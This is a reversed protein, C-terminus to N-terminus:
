ESDEDEAYNRRAIVGTRIRTRYPWDDSDIIAYKRRRTSHRLAPAPIVPNIMHRAVNSLKNSTDIYCKQCNNCGYLEPAMDGKFRETFWDLLDKLESSIRSDAKFEWCKALLVYRFNTYALVFPIGHDKFFRLMDTIVTIKKEVDHQTDCVALFGNVKTLCFEKYATWEETHSPVTSQEVMMHEHVASKFSETITEPVFETARPNLSRKQKKLAELESQIRATSQTVAAHRNKWIDRDAQLAQIQQQLSLMDSGMTYNEGRLADMTDEYMMNDEYSAARLSAITEDSTRLAAEREAIQSRLSRAEAKLNMVLNVPDDGDFMALSKEIQINHARLERVLRELRIIKTFAAPLVNIPMTTM